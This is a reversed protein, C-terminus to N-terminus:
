VQISPLRDFTQDGVYEDRARVFSVGRPQCLGSMFNSVTSGTNFPNSSNDIFLKGRNSLRTYNFWEKTKLNVCNLFIHYLVLLLPYLMLIHTYIILVIGEPHNRVTNITSSSTEHSDRSTPANHDHHFIYYYSLVNMYIISLLSMTIFSFFYLYNRMGVCNNLWLCHHDMNTICADCVACHSTRPPRWIRCTPCYKTLVSLQPKQKENQHQQKKEAIYNFFSKRHNEKEYISSNNTNGHANDTDKIFSIKINHTWQNIRDFFKPRTEYITVNNNGSELQRSKNVVPLTIVNLYETPAKFANDVININRPVIGPDTSAAKYFSVVCHLWLYCFIIVVAPSVRKWYWKALFVFFLVAPSVVLFCTLLVYPKNHFDRITRARGGFCFIYNYIGMKEYTKVSINATSLKHNINNNNNNNNNSSSSSGGHHHINNNVTQAKWQQYQKTKESSPDTILWFLLRLWKSFNAQSNSQGQFQGRFHRTFTISHHNASKRRVLTPLIPDTM